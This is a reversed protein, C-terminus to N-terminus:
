RRCWFQESLGLWSQLPISGAWRDETANLAEIMAIAALIVWAGGRRGSAIFLAFAAYFLLEFTLTWTVYMAHRAYTPDIDILTISRLTNGIGLNDYNLTNGAFYFAAFAVWLPPYIRALRRKFFDGGTIDRNTGAVMVFGSIVFFVMVGLWGIKMIDTAAMSGGGSQFPVAQHFLCVALAAVFRLFQVFPQKGRM